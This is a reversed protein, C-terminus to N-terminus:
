TIKDKRERWRGRERADRAIRSKREATRRGRKSKAGKDRKREEGM